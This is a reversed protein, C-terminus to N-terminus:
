RLPRNKLYGHRLRDALAANASGWQGYDKAKRQWLWWRWRIGGHTRMYLDNLIDRKAKRLEEQTMM